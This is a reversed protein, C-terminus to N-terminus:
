ELQIKPTSVKEASQNATLPSNVLDTTIAKDEPASNCSIAVSFILLLIFQQTKM